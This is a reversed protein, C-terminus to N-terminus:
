DSVKHGCEDIDKLVMYKCDGCNEGCKRCCKHGCPLVKTCKVTCILEEEKMHCQCEQKHQCKPLIKEVLITCTSCEEFCM